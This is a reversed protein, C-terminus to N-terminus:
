FRVANSAQLQRRDQPKVVRIKSKPIGLANSIIRRVHFVIQTSSTREATLPGFYSLLDPLDGDHSTQQDALTHYTGEAVVDCEALVQM